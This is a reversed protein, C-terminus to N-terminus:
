RTAVLQGRVVGGGHAASHVNFYYNGPNKILEDAVAPEVDIDMKKITAGGAGFTIAQAPVLGTDVKVPGNMTASGQHIHALTIQTTAPCFSLTVDFSAKGSTVNYYAPDTLVALTIKAQGACSAEAGAIPPIENTSKLDAVFNYLDPTRTPMPAPSGGVTPASSATVAPSPAVAAGGCAAVLLTLACALALWSRAPQM